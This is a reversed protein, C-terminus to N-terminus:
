EVEPWLGIIKNLSLSLGIGKKKGITFKKSRHHQFHSVKRMLSARLAPM